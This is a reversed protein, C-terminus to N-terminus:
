PSVEFYPSPKTINIVGISTGAVTIIVRTKKTEDWFAVTELLRTYFGEIGEEYYDALDELVTLIIDKTPSVDFYSVWTVASTPHNLTGPLGIEVCWLDKQRLKM